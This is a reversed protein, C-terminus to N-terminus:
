THIPEQPILICRRESTEATATCDLDRTYLMFKRLYARVIVDGDDTDLYSILSAAGDHHVSSARRLDFVASTSEYM